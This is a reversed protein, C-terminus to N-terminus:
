LLTHPLPRRLPLSALFFVHLFFVISLFSALFVEFEAMLCMEWVMRTDLVVDAIEQQDNKMCTKLIKAFNDFIVQM